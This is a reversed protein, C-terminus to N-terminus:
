QPSQQQQQQQRLSQLQDYIQQPTKVGNPSAPQSPDSAAPTGNAGTAPPTGAPHNPAPSAPAPEVPPPPPAAQAASKAEREEIAAANPNPPTAGGQRSSLILQAPTAGDSHLLLMNADTGDLLAALVQSPAEPGYQGFVREDAVAGSIKIGTESSIERLIQNLSSNDASVALSGESYTVQASQPPLQAPTPPPAPEAPPVPPPIPAAKAKTTAKVTAKTAPPAQALLPASFAFALAAAFRISAASHMHRYSTDM